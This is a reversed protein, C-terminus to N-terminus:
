GIRQLWEEANRARERYHSITAELETIRGEVARLEIGLKSVYGTARNRAENALGSAQQLM